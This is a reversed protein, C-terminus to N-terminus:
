FNVELIKTPVVELHQLSIRLTLNQVRQLGNLLSMGAHQFTTKGLRINASQLKLSRSLDIPILSGIYEFTVLNVAHFEIKTLESYEVRLYRLRSLSGDVTLDDNLNCRDICLWELNCCRSLMHEIDKRSVHILQLHLKRLYRFGRFQDPPNLSLFSLQMQEIRPINGGDLLQFPFAYRDKYGWCNWIPKTVGGQWPTKSLVSTRAYAKPPLKSAITCLVDQAARSPPHRRGANVAQQDTDDHMQTCPRALCITTHIYVTSSRYPLCTHFRIGLAPRGRDVSRDCNTKAISDLELRRPSYAVSILVQMEAAGEGPWAPTPGRSAGLGREASAALRGQRRSLPQARRTRCPGPRGDGAAFPCPPARQRTLGGSDRCRQQPRRWGMAAM